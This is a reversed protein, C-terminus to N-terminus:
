PHVATTSTVTTEAVVGQELEALRTAQLVLRHRLKTNIAHLSTHSASVARLLAKCHAELECVVLENLLWQESAADETSVPGISSAGGLDDDEPEPTATTVVPYQPSLQLTQQQQQFSAKLAAIAGFVASQAEVLAPSSSPDTQIDNEEMSRLSTNSHDHNHTSVDGGFSDCESLDTHTSSGGGGGGGGGALPVKQQDTSSCHQLISDHPLFRDLNSQSAQKVFNSQSQQHLLVQNHQQQKLLQSKLKEVQHRLMKIIELNDDDHNDEDGGDGDGLTSLSPENHHDAAAALPLRSALPRHVSNSNGHYHHNNGMTYSAHMSRPAVVVAAPSVPNYYSHISRQPSSPFTPNNNHATTARYSRQPSLPYNMASGSANYSHRIHSQSVNGAHATADMENNTDLTNNNWTDNDVRLSGFSGELTEYGDDDSNYDTGEVEETIINRIPPTTHNGNSLFGGATLSSISNQLHDLASVGPPPQLAKKSRPNTRSNSRLSRPSENWPADVATAIPGNNMSVVPLSRVSYHANEFDAMTLSDLNLSTLSNQLSAEATELTHPSLKERDSSRSNYWEPELVEHHGSRNMNM